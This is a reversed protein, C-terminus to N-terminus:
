SVFRITLPYRYYEGNSAKVAAMIVLVLWAVFGALLVPLLLFGILIFVTVVAILSGVVFWIM